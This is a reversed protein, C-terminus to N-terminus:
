YSVPPFLVEQKTAFQPLLLYSVETLAVYSNKIHNWTYAFSLLGGGGGDIESAKLM